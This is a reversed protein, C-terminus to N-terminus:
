RYAKLRRKTTIHYSLDHAGSKGFEEKNDYDQKILKNNNIKQAFNHRIGVWELSNRTKRESKYRYVAPQAVYRPFV